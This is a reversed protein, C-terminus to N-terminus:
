LRSKPKNKKPDNNKDDYLTTIMIMETDSEFRM